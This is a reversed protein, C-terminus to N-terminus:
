EAAREEDRQRLLALLGLLGAVAGGAGPLRRPRIPAPRPTVPAAPPNAPTRPASRLAISGPGLTQGTMTEIGVLAKVPETFRTRRNFLGEPRPGRQDRPIVRFGTPVRVVIPEDPKPAPLVQAGAQAVVSRRRADWWRRMHSRITEVESPSFGIVDRVPAGRVQGTAHYGLIVGWSRKVRPDYIWWFYVGEATVRKRLFSRTRSLDYAPTLPPADPDADGMASRRNNYTYESIPALKQGFRDLGKRRSKDWEAAAIISAERRFRGKMAESAVGWAPDDRPEVQEWRLWFGVGQGPLQAAM